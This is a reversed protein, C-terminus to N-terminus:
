GSIQGGVPEGGTVTTGGGSTRIAGGTCSKGGTATIQVAKATVSGNSASPGSAAVCDGVALGSAAAPQTETYATKPSLAVSVVQPKSSGHRKGSQGTSTSTKTPGKRSTKQVATSSFGSLVLRSGSVSLVKGDAVGPPETDHATKGGPPTAVQSNGPSGGSIRVAGTGGSSSPGATNSPSAGTCSGSPSPASISVAQAKIKGKSSSGTATVCDGAVVSSVSVTADQTFTTSSTWNVTVQGTQQNQVEMSTGAIAAVTGFAGPPGGPPTATQGAAGAPGGISVAALLGGALAAPLLGWPRHSPRDM